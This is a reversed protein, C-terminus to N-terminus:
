HSHEWQMSFTVEEGSRTGSKERAWKYPNMGVTIRHVQSVGRHIALCTKSTMQWAVTMNFTCKIHFSLYSVPTGVELLLSIWESFRGLVVELFIHIFSQMMTNNFVFLRIKSTWYYFHKSKAMLNRKPIKWLPPLEIAYSPKSVLPFLDKMQKLAIDCQPTACLQEQSM